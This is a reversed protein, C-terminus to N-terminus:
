HIFIIFSQPMKLENKSIQSPETSQCAQQTLNNQFGNFKSKFKQFIEFIMFNSDSFVTLNNKLNNKELIMFNLNWIVTSNKFVIIKVFWYSHEYIMGRVTQGIEYDINEYNKTFFVQGLCIFIVTACTTNVFNRM